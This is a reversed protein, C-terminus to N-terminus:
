RMQEKLWIALVSLRPEFQGAFFHDVLPLILLQKPGAASAVVAVPAGENFLAGQRGGPCLRSV